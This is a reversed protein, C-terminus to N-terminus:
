AWCPSFVYIRLCISYICPWRDSRDRSTRELDCARAAKASLARLEYLLSRAAAAWRPDLGMAFSQRLDEQFNMSGPTGHPPSDRLLAPYALSRSLKSNGHSGLDELLSSLILAGVKKQLRNLYPFGGWFFLFFLYVPVVPLGLSKM